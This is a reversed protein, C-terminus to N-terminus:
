HSGGVADSALPKANAINLHSVILLLRNFLM